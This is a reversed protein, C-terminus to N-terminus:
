KQHLHVKEDRSWVGEEPFKSLAFPIMHRGLSVVNQNGSRATCEAIWSHTQDHGLESVTIWIYAPNYQGQEQMPPFDFSVGRYGPKNIPVGVSFAVEGKIPRDDTEFYVAFVYSAEERPVLGWGLELLSQEVVELLDEEISVNRDFSTFSPPEPHTELAFTKKEEAPSGQAQVSYRLRYACGDFILVSGVILPVALTLVTHRIRNM